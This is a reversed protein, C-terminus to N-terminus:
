RTRLPPERADPQRAARGPALAREPISCRRCSRTSWTWWRAGGRAGHAPRRGGRRRARRRRLAGGRGRRRLGALRRLAPRVLARGARGGGHGRRARRAARPRARHRHAARPRPRAALPRARRAADRPPALDAVYPRTASRADRAAGYAPWRAPRRPRRHRRRPAAEGRKARALLEIADVIKVYGTCRCLHSTSPAPSRTAPRRRTAPRHPAQRAPRHRPHLLRVPAGGRRRLRGLDARAGRALRGRADPGAQGRGGRRADRLDVKAQGDVLALCCGCQGQPRCGDKLSTIGCRERLVELLSEGPRTAVQRPTGNLTFAVHGPGRDDTPGRRLASMRGAGTARDGQDPRLRPGLQVGGGAGRVDRRRRAPRGAGHHASRHRPDPAGPRAGRGDRAGRQPVAAARPRVGPPSPGARTLNLARGPPTLARPRAAGAPPGRGRPVAAPGRRRHGDDERQGAPPPQDSGARARGRELVVRVARDTDNIVAFPSVAGPIVGLHRM